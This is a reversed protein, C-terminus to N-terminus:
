KLPIAETVVIAGNIREAKFKIKDGVQLTELMAPEKVRFVMTMGPMELNKIEGHKLTIKNNAKDLKRVEGEAMNSTDTAASAGPKASAAHHSDDAHAGPLAILALSALLLTTFKKM